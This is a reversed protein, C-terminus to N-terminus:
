IGAVMHCYVTSGTHTEGSGKADAQSPSTFGSLLDMISVWLHDTLLDTGFQRGADKAALSTGFM